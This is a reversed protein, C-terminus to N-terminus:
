FNGCTDCKSNGAKSSTPTEKCTECACRYQMLTKRMMRRKEKETVGALQDNSVQAGDLILLKNYEASFASGTMNKVAKWANLLRTNEIMARQSEALSEPWRGTLALLAILMAIGGLVGAVIKTLAVVTPDDFTLLTSAAAIPVAFTIWTLAKLKKTYSLARQEFLWATGYAEFEKEYCIRLEPSTSPHAAIPQPTTPIPTSM